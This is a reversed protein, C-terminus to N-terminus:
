LRGDHVEQKLQRWVEGQAATRDTQRAETDTLSRGTAWETRLGEADRLLLNTAHKAAVYLQRNSHVYFAAVGPAEDAGIRDVFNALHSNVTRNRVPDVSYRERYADSYSRWVALTRGEAKAAPPPPDSAVPLASPNSKPTPPKLGKGEGQGKCQGQGQVEGEGQGKLRSKRLVGGENGDSTAAGGGTNGSSNNPTGVSDWLRWCPIGDVLRMSLLPPHPPMPLASENREAREKNAKRQRDCARKHEQMIKGNWGEAAKEAVVPHYWRGDSCRIWRHLAGDKIKLFERVARGYGALQSLQKEDDPMSSSPVQHWAASWLLIAAVIEEPTKEAMLGSDRLRRVDLPMFAFDRLDVDAPVLPDPLQLDIL